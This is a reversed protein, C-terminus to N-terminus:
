IKAHPLHEMTVVHVGKGIRFVATNRGMSFSKATLSSTESARQSAQVMKEREAETPLGSWSSLVFIQVM